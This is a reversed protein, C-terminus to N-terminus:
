LGNAIIEQQLEQLQGDLGPSIVGAVCEYIIDLCMVAEKKSVQGNEYKVGTNIISDRVKIELAESLAKELTVDPVETIGPDIEREM